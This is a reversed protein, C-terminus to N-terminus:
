GATRAPLSSFSESFAIHHIASLDLTVSTGPFYIQGDINFGAIFNSCCGSPEAFIFSRTGSGAIFFDGVVSLSGSCVPQAV